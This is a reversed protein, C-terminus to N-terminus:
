VSTALWFAVDGGGTVYAAAVIAIGAALAAWAWGDHGVGARRRARRLLLGGVVAVPLALLLVHLHAAMADATQHARSLDDGQRPGTVTVDATAGLLKVLVPWAALALVGATGALLPRWPPVGPRAAWSGRAGRLAMLGVIAMATVIGEDKTLGAVALLLVAAGADRGRGPLVLGFGVAGVAASAWLPDAYGNTAFPGAVGAAALVLLGAVVVGATCAVAAGIRRGVEVAVWAAAALACAGLLAVMVVGLRYGHDGTVLWSVAVSGGVLPPYSAHAFPIAPSRLATLAARHGDLFWVGHLMWITRADFGVTPARLAVLWWTTAALVVVAGATGAARHGAPRGGGRGDGVGRRRRLPCAAPWRRWVAMTGVAAVVALGVFWGLLPGGVALCGAASAAALVAGALPAAPVTLWGVGVLTAAPLAGAAALVVMAVVAGGATGM